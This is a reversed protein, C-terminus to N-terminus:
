YWNRMKSNVTEAGKILLMKNLDYSNLANKGSFAFFGRVSFYRHLIERVSVRLCDLICGVMIENVVVFYMIDVVVVYVSHKYLVLIKCMSQITLCYM